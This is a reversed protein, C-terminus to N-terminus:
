APDGELKTRQADLLGKTLVIQSARRLERPRLDRAELPPQDVRHRNAVDIACSPRKTCHQVDPDPPV